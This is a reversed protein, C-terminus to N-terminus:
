LAAIEEATLGLDALKALASVRAAAKAEREALGAEYETQFQANDAIEEATLERETIKGTLGDLTVAKPAESM